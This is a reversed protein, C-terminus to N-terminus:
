NSEEEPPEKSCEIEREIARRAEESLNVFEIGVGTGSQCYRVEARAKVLFNVRPLRFSIKLVAGVPLSAPTNIFMGQSSLSPLALGIKREHGEYSVTLDPLYRLRKFQRVPSSKHTKPSM